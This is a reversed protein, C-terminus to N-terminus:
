LMSSTMLPSRRIKWGNTNYYTHYRPNICVVIPILTSPTRDLTWTILIFFFIDLRHLEISADLYLLCCLFNLKIKLYLDIVKLNYQDLHLWWSEIISLHLYSLCLTSSQIMVLPPHCPLSSSSESADCLFDCSLSWTSKRNTYVVFLLLSDFFFVASPQYLHNISSISWFTSQAFTIPNM